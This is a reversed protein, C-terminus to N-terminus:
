KGGVLNTLVSTARNWWNMRRSSRRASKYQDARMRYQAAEFAAQTDNEYIERQMNQELLEQDLQANLRSSKLIRRATESQSSLGNGALLAKQQSVLQSYERGLQSNQYAAQQFIYASNRRAVNEIEAAQAEAMAAMSRYYKDEAKDYGLMSAATSIVKGNSVLVGALAAGM